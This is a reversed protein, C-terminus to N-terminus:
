KRGPRAQCLRSADRGPQGNRPRSASVSHTARVLARAIGANGDPFHFINPDPDMLLRRASASMARYPAAGLNMGEFGPNGNGWADLASVSDIGVGFYGETSNQFYAVLQPDCGCIETLFKDYTAGSLLMLKEARSRGALYDRPYDIIEILDKKAKASLPTRAVWDATDDTKRVLSDAGFLEKNFFVAPGLKHREAWAEDYSSKFRAIDVGIDALLRKVAPSFFSPTQLSSRAAMASSREAM